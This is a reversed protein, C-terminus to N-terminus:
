LILFVKSEVFCSPQEHGLRRAQARGGERDTVMAHRLEAPFVPSHEACGRHLVNSRAPQISRRDSREHLPTLPRASKPRRFGYGSTPLLGACEPRGGKTLTLRSILQVFRTPCEHLSLYCQRHLSRAFAM